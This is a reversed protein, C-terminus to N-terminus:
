KTNAPAAVGVDEAILVARIKDAHKAGITKFLAYIKDTDPPFASVEEGALEDSMRVTVSVDQACAVAIGLAGFVM